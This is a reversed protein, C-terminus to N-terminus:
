AGSAGTGGRIWSDIVASNWRVAGASLKRPAPFTGAKVYRYITMRSLGTRTQVEKSTLLRDEAKHAM